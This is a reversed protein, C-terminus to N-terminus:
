SLKNYVVRVNKKPVFIRYQKNRRSYINYYKEGRSYIYYLVQEQWIMPQQSFDIEDSIKFKYTLICRCECMELGLYKGMYKM